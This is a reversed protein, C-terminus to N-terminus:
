CKDHRNWRDLQTIIQGGGKQLIMDVARQGLSEPDEINGTCSATIIEGTEPHGLFANLSLTGGSISAHAGLPMRCSGKLSKAVARECLSIAMTENCNVSQVLKIMKRNEKLCEIAITGQGASPIFDDPELHETIRDLLGLRALGAAALIVADCENQMKELRTEVNGRLPVTRLDPRRAKILAMRRPSSTGIIADSPLKMFAQGSRSILVDRPDDRKMVAAITFNPDLHAGMDKLSHIAAEAQRKELRMELEKIFLDKGGIDYLPRDLTRDGQSVTPLLEWKIGPHQEALNEQTMRAQVM